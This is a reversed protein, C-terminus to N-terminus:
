GRIPAPLVLQGTGLLNDVFNGGPIKNGEATGQDFPMKGTPMDSTLEEPELMAYYYVGSISWTGADIDPMPADAGQGGGLFRLNMAGTLAYPGPVVPTDGYSTATWRIALQGVPRHLRVIACSPTKDPGCKPLQVLGETKGRIRTISYSITDRGDSIIRAM